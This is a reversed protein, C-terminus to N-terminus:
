LIIYRFGFKFNNLNLKETVNDLKGIYLKQEM